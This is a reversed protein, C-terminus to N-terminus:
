KGADNVPSKYHSFFTNHFPKIGSLAIAKDLTGVAIVNEHMERRDLHVSIARELLARLDLEFHLSSRLTELRLVDPM